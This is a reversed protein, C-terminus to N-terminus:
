GGSPRKDMTLTQGNILIDAVKFLLNGRAPAPMGSWAPLARGAAEAAREVHAPSGKVFLGVVEDTNAPNRNEFTDGDTIWAGDIYNGFTQSM